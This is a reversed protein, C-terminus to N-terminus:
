CSKFAVEEFDLTEERLPVTFNIIVLVKNSM